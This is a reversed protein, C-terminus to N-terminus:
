LIINNATADLPRPEIRKTLPRALEMPSFAPSVCLAPTAYGISPGHTKATHKFTDDLCADRGAENATFAKCDIRAQDLYTARHGEGRGALEADSGGRLRYRGRAARAQSWFAGRNARDHDQGRRSQSASHRPVGRHPEGVELADQPKATFRRPTQGWDAELLSGPAQNSLREASVIIPRFSLTLM